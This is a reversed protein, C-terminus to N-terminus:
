DGGVVSLVTKQYQFNRLIFWLCVFLCVLAIDTHLSCVLLIQELNGICQVFRCFELHVMHV